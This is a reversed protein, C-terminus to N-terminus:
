NMIVVGMSYGSEGVDAKGVSTTQPKYDIHLQQGVVLHKLCEGNGVVKVLLGCDRTVNDLEVSVVSNKAEEWMRHFEINVLYGLM